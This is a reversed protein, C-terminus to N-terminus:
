SACPIDARVTFRGGPERTLVMTGDLAGVRDEVEVLEDLDADGEVELELRGESTTATVRLRSPDAARATESVVFYAATEVAPDFRREPIDSLEVPITAEEAFAELAAALGEDVLVAPFIGHAVDRLEALAARLEREAQELPEVLSPSPEPGLGSRALRLSLSLGVLRQQAGDHLDRELRRREADGAAIVRARSGRLDELQAGAQARLRENELGLRAAGALEEALGPDDLLGPRHSLLAVQQGDRVLATTEGTLAVPQGRADVLQDDELPYALEITPDGLTDALADRLGGPAPSHALEVVLRAVEDRTKRARVWSWAVGLSIGVLAGAEALRLDIDTADNGLFGRDLSHAFEAAVLGLYATAAVIVPWILRRLAATSRALRLVLLGALGFSWVLGLDVGTTNLDEVVGPSSHVLLLNEPCQACGAAGPDFLVAPLLGLVVAGGLYAVTVALRDVTSSLRGDPYTLAAHALVAPAIAYFALGISFALSSGIEPNNWEALFWGLGAAALLAGFPSERRRIWSVTGVAILACGAALEAVARGISDGVLAYEPQKRVLAFTLVGVAAGGVLLILPRAPAALSGRRM